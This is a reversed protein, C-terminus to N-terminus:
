QQNYYILFMLFHHLSLLFLIEFNSILFKLMFIDGLNELYRTEGISYIIQQPQPLELNFHQTSYYFFYVKKTIIFKSYNM